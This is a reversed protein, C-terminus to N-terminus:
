GGPAGSPRPPLWYDGPTSTSAYTAACWAPQARISASARRRRRSVPSSTSSSTVSYWRAVVWRDASREAPCSGARTARSDPRTACARAATVPECAGAQDATARKASTDKGAM